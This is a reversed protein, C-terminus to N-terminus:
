QLYHNGILLAQDCDNKIQAVLEEIGNFKQENRIKQLFYLRIQQGYIDSSFNMIYTEISVPFNEHFTPKSGINVVGNYRKGEIVAHAAYVGKGPVILQDNVGMNATPYGIQMGRHEGEIITGQLMPTYGLMTEALRMDGAELAKRILSSSVVDGNIKVPPIIHVGIGNKGCLEALLEPTGAGKHGFSYNFGVFAECINLRDVLIKQVFEHPTWEALELTFPSYVLIDLGLQELLEAKRDPTVLLKPPTEPFLVAAPHPEFIFGAAIGRNQHARTVMEAILRKHGQHVGDFNGLALYVPKDTTIYNEIGNIIEM